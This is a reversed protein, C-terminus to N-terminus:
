HKFRRHHTRSYLEDVDNWNKRDSKVVIPLRGSGKAKKEKLYALRRELGALEPATETIAGVKLSSPALAIAAIITELCEISAKIVSNGSQQLYFTIQDDDLYQEEPDTDGIEMRVQQLNSIAM